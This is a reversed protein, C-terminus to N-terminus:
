LDAEVFLHGERGHVYGNSFEARPCLAALQDAADAPEVAGDLVARYLAAVAVMDVNQPWLRFRNIGRARLAPLEHLLDLYHYSMTQTGNVALFPEDDLTDVAMGDPDEACVYQCGDKALNRSRAHYCRASIALPLRGFAQIEIEGKAAGALTVLIDAPLEAPLCTRVAGLEELAALTGENYINLLPGAVFPRGALMSAVSIDNAEVLFGADATALQRAENAERETMILALSSLVVEKGASTLREIVEPLVPALFPTRKSCVVEGVCVTDVCAEDAIRFYFDRFAEPRWNFLVPGLTLKAPHTM